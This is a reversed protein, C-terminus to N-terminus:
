RPFSLSAIQDLTTQMVKVTHKLAYWCQLSSHIALTFLRLAESMLISPIFIQVLAQSVSPETSHHLFLLGM